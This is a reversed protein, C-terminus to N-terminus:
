RRSARPLSAIFRDRAVPPWSAVRRPSASAAESSSTSAAYAPFTVVSVEFVEMDTVTRRPLREPNGHASGAREWQEDVVRFRFSAGFEGAALPAVLDRNYGTDYLRGAVILGRPDAFAVSAPALPLDSFLPSHGHGFLIKPRPNRKLAGAFARELIREQFRGGTDAVTAWTDAVLLLRVMPMTTTDAIAHPEKTIGAEGGARVEIRRM